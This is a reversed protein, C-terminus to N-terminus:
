MVTGYAAVQIPDTTGSCQARAYITSGAPVRCYQIPGEHKFVEEIASLRFGISDAIMVMNTGDGYALDIFYSTANWNTDATSIQLGCEWAFCDNSTTGLSTWSGESTTGSTVSVGAYGSSIGVCEVRQGVPALEPNMPSLCARWSVRFQTSVSGYAAIGVTAGSPIFVPFSYRVGTDSYFPGASGCIVDQIIDTFSTGGAADIGVKLVTNRSANSGANSDVWVELVHCDGTLASGIQVYSGYSGTGPTVLTGFGAGFTPRTTGWSTQIDRFNPSFTALM